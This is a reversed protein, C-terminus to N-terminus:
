FQVLQITPRTKLINVLLINASSDLQLELDRSRMFGLIYTYVKVVVVTKEGDAKVSVPEIMFNNVRMGSYTPIAHEKVFNISANIAQTDNLALALNSSLVVLLVFFLLSVALTFLNGKM